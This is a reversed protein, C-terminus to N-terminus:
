QGAEQKSATSQGSKHNSMAGWMGLGLLTVLFLLGTWFLFGAPSDPDQHQVWDYEDKGSIRPSTNSM